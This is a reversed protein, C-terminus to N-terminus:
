TSMKTLSKMLATSPSQRPRFNRMPQHLPPHHRSSALRMRQITRIRLASCIAGYSLHTPPPMHRAVSWVVAVRSTQARACRLRRHRSLMQWARPSSVSRTAARQASWPYRRSQRDASSATSSGQRCRACTRSPPLRPGNASPSSSPAAGPLRSKKRRRRTTRM